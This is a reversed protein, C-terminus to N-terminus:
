GSSQGRRFAQWAEAAAAPAEVMPIHGIDKMVNLTSNPLLAHLLPAGSVDLLRDRDGWTILAPVPLAKLADEFAVATGFLDAFVKAHFQRNRMARGAFVKFVANPTYPARVFCMEVLRRFDVTSRILLPNEGRDLQKQLESPAAGMVGAPALLWVSAVQEPHRAAYHGALYGGMSNGALHFRSLGLAKVFAEIRGLQADLSYSQDPRQSSDGFGPLDPAIVRYHPTLHRAVLAWNDLTAGFGHLMVLPEGKGGDVYVVTHGDVELAHTALGAARRQLRLLGRVFPGPFWQWALALTVVMVACAKLLM